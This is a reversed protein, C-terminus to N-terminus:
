KGAGVGVLVEEGGDGGAEVGALWDLRWGMPGREAFSSRGARYSGHPLPGQAEVVFFRGRLM